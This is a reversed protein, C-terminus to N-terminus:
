EFESDERNSFYESETSMEMVYGNLEGVSPMTDLWCVQEITLNGNVEGILFRATNERWRGSCVGGRCRIRRRCHMIFGGPWVFRMDVELFERDTASYCLKLVNSTGIIRRLCRLPMFKLGPKEVMKEAIFKRTAACSMFNIFDDMSVHRLNGRGM